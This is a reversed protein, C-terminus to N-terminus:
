YNLLFEAKNLLAWLLDEAGREHQEALLKAGYASEDGSPFRSLAALFLEEVIKDNSNPPEARLLTQLRGKADVKLKAKVLENNMLVSSQVISPSLNRAAFTRDDYGFSALVQHLKPPLDGASVTQMVWKVKVNPDGQPLDEHVGTAQSIADEAVMRM